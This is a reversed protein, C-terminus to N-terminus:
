TESRTELALNMELNGIATKLNISLPLQCHASTVDIKRGYIVKVQASNFVMKRDMFRKEILRLVGQFLNLFLNQAEQDFSEVKRTTLGGSMTVAMQVPLSMVVKGQIDGNILVQLSLDYASKKDQKLTFEQVSVDGLAPVQSTLSEMFPQIIDNVDPAKLM